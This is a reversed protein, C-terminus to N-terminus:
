LAIRKGKKHLAWALLSLLALMAATALLGGTAGIAILRHWRRARLSRQRQTLRM